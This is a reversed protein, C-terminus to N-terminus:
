GPFTRASVPALWLGALADILGIATAEWGARAAGEGEHLAGEGEHLAREREALTHVVLLRSMDGRERHVEEPLDPLLRFMGELARGMSPAAVSEDVVIQRLAPVTDFQALCRARWSPVGLAELQGTAPRVLCAIWGRPDGPEAIEALMRLRREETVATHRRVIARVLDAKTGFHYGVAFNNAQGAAQGIQRNSVEGVGREAFLREAADLIAERTDHAREARGSAAQATRSSSM